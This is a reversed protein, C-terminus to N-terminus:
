ELITAKDSVCKIGDTPVIEFVNLTTNARWALLTAGNRGAVLIENDPVGNLSCGDPILIDGAELNSLDIVDKVEWYPNGSSDRHTMKSLWLMRNAGDSRLSLSYDEADQILMSFGETLDAPLPPYKFGLYQSFKEAASETVPVATPSDNIAVPSSAAIPAPTSANRLPGCASIILIMIGVLLAYKMQKNM